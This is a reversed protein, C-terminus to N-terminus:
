GIGLYFPTSGTATLTSRVTKYGGSSVVRGTIAAEPCRLYMCAGAVTGLQLAIDRVTVVTGITSADGLLDDLDLGSGDDVVEGVTGDDDGVYLDLEIVASKRAVHRGGQIGNAGAPTPRAEFGADLSVSLSKFLKLTAADYFSASGSVIPSGATPDAFSPNAAAVDNWDNCSFTWDLGVKGSDPVNIKLMKAACDRYKRRPGSTFSTDEWDLWVDKHKTRGPVMTYRGLRHITSATTPTGTYARDFTVTGTGGGSVVQRIHTGTSTEFRVIDLNALVTTANEALTTTSHGSASVTPAASSHADAIDGFFSALLKGVELEAEFDSMAGGDYSNLGRLETSFTLDDINKPGLLPKVLRGDTTQLDERSIHERARPYFSSIETTPLLPVYAGPETGYTSTAANIGVQLSNFRNGATM